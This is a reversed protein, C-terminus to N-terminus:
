AADEGPECLLSARARVLAILRRQSPEDCFETMRRTAVAIEEDLRHPDLLGFYHWWGAEAEAPMAAPQACAPLPTPADSLVRAATAAAGTRALHAILTPSDLADAANTAALLADRLASLDAPLAVTEYAHALDPLLAPHRLLIATMFRAREAAAREASPTVRPPAPRAPAGAPRRREDFYLDLLARRYETALARDPIRRAADELRHRFAARAEPTDALGERLARYLAGSLPLADTLIARFGEAGQRRVYSDPDDGARLTAIRLSQDPTLLPLATEAARLAARAGAPDGDFCLIPVPALRWLEQLQDETLATGLPAVAGGIGAQHLAIVDMYGEVAVLEAGDRVAARARDLGFLTRRKSFVPTEPGNLYKPQGDGLTRGGFSVIRGQRDRIPFMVRNFFLEGPERGPEAPPRLLGAELLQAREIGERALEAALAGRGEGSWGLGFAAITDETLGRRLLYDLAPRGEPLHLRRQYARGAAELVEILTHRQREAEAAAPSPKPVELGAEAALQQVAEIFGAGQTQMVFTIADGHAGCGFCHYGDDYIYFSPTKEGHFPCCAKWQRGARELKVRRGILAALPTRARLEDLFAAPLAM